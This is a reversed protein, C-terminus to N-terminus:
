RSVGFPGTSATELLYHAPSHPHPDNVGRRPLFATVRRAVGRLRPLRVAAGRLSRLTCDARVSLPSPTQEAVRFLMPLPIGVPRAGADESPDLTPLDSSHWTTAGYSSCSSRCASFSRNGSASGADARLDPMVPLVHKQICTFAMSSLRSRTGCADFESLSRCQNAYNRIRVAM